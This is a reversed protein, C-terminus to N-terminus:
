HLLCACLILYVHQIKKLKELLELANQIKFIKVAVWEIEGLGEVM